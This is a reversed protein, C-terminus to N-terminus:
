LISCPTIAVSLSAREKAGWKTQRYFSGPNGVRTGMCNNSKRSKYFLGDAIIVFLWGGSEM